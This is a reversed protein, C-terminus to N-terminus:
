LKKTTQHLSTVLSKASNGLLTVDGSVALYRYGASALKGAQEVSGVFAGMYTGTRAAAEEIKGIRATVEPHDFQGPVGFDVSLDMPGIFAVDLGEMMQDIPDDIQRTEFQGIVLARANSEALYRPAPVTGYGAWTNAIGVSRTGEPPFHMMTHLSKTDERGRLRPMQIGVAGAELLRNVLGQSPEPLRVTVPLGAAECAKIVTRAEIESIQAHEMDCIVFDFGALALLDVVEPRPLKLFTGFCTKEALKLHLDGHSM